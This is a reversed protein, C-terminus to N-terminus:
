DIEDIIVTQKEKAELHESPKDSEDAIRRLKKIRVANKIMKIEDIVQKSRPM